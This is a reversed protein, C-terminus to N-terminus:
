RFYKEFIKDLSDECEKAFVEYKAMLEEAEVTLESGGGGTGGTKSCILGFGLRKEIDKVLNFAKNYSMDMSKAAESLSGKDRVGRLLEYPGKGFVKGNQELWIKYKLELMELSREQKYLYIKAGARVLQFVEDSLIDEVM